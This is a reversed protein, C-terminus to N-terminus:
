AGGFAQEAEARLRRSLRSGGGVVRLEALQTALGKLAAGHDAAAQIREKAATLGARSSAGRAGAPRPPAACSVRRAGCRNADGFQKEALDARDSERKVKLVNM